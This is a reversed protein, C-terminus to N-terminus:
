GPMSFRSSTATVSFRVLSSIPAKASANSPRSHVQNELLARGAAAPEPNGGAVHGGPGLNGLRKAARAVGLQRLHRFQLHHAVERLQRLAVEADVRVHVRQARAGHLVVRPEQLVHRGQLTERAEMRQQGLQAAPADQRLPGELDEVLHGLPQALDGAHGLEAHLWEGAGVAFEGAGHENGGIVAEVAVALGRDDNGIRGVARVGGAGGDGPILHHSGRAVLPADQVGGVDLVQHVVLGGGEHQRARVRQAQEVAVDPGQGVHDVGDAAQHVVVPRVQVGDGAPGAGAVQPEVHDLQVEVLGEGRRVAAPSRARSGDADGLREDGEQGGRHDDLPGVARVGELVVALVADAVHRREVAVEADDQLRISIHQRKSALAQFAHGLRGDQVGVVEQGAEARVVLHREVAPAHM